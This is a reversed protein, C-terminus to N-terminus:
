SAGDEDESQQAFRRLVLGCNVHIGVYLIQSDPLEVQPSVSDLVDVRWIMRQEDTDYVRSAVVAPLGSEPPYNAACALVHSIWSQGPANSSEEVLWDYIARLLGRDQTEVNWIARVVAAAAPMLPHYLRHNKAGSGIEADAPFVGEAAMRRFWAAAQAETFGPEALAKAIENVKLEERGM